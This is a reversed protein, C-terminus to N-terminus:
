CIGNGCIETFEAIAVNLNSQLKRYPDVTLAKATRGPYTRKECPLGTTGWGCSLPGPATTWYPGWQSYTPTYNVPTLDQNVNNSSLSYLESHALSFSCGAPLGAGSCQMPSMAFTAAPFPPPSFYGPQDARTRVLCPYGTAPAWGDGVLSFYYRHGGTLRLVSTTSNGNSDRYEVNSPYRLDLTTYYLPVNNVCSFNGCSVGVLGSSQFTVATHPRNFSYKARWNENPNQNYRDFDDYVYLKLDQSTAPNGSVQHIADPMIGSVARFQTMTYRSYTTPPTWMTTLRKYHATNIGLMSQKCEAGSLAGPNSGISDFGWTGETYQAHVDNSAAGILCFVSFVISTIKQRPIM